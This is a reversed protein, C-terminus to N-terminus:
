KTKLAEQVQAVAVKAENAVAPDTTATQAIELSEQSPFYPLLSLISLKDATLSALGMSEGLLRASEAASRESQLVMLKLAGRLALVQLNSVAQRRGRGGGGGGVAPAQSGPPPGQPAGARVPEPGAPRQASKALGLLDALPAPDDWASLALIAGRALEADPEKMTGTLLPLAAPSSTQGMVDLLALRAERVTATRYASLVADM